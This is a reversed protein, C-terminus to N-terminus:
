TRKDNKVNYVMSKFDKWANTYALFGGENNYFGTVDKRRQKYDDDDFGFIVKGSQEVLSSVVYGIMKLYAALNIDKTEFLVKPSKKEEQPKEETM